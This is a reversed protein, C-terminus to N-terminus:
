SKDDKNRKEIKLLGHGQGSELLGKKVRNYNYDPFEIEKEKSVM